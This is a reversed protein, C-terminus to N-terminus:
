TVSEAELTRMKGSRRVGASTAARRAEGGELAARAFRASKEAAAAEMEDRFSKRRSAPILGHVEASIQGEVECRQIEDVFSRSAERV